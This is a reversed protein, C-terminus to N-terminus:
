PNYSEDCTEKCGECPENLEKYTDHQYKDHIMPNMAHKGADKAHIMPNKVLIMNINTM